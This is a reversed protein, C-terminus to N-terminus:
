RFIPIHAGATDPLLGLVRPDDAIEIMQCVPTFGSRQYFSLAAPHDLTCTHVHFRSIQRSWALEIAQNMLYRGAGTGILKSTLGFFALECEDRSRFDLELMGESRGSSELVYLAVNPDSLIASIQAESKTLRSFWLWNIGGVRRFLDKYTTPDTQEVRKFVVGESLQAPRLPAQARMELYTVVAAVKGPPVDYLGNALM